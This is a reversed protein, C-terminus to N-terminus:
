APQNSSAVRRFPLVIKCVTGRGPTSDLELSGGANEVLSKSISLGLGMGGLKTTFFPEFIREELHPVVGEGQDTVTITVLRDALAASITVVGSVPSAEIANQVVNYLVQYLQGEQSMPVAASADCLACLTQDITVERQRATSELLTTVDSIATRVASAHQNQSEPQYLKFMQRVIQAIRDIERQIKGVYAHYPHTQPVAEQVLLFAHKIGAIPNNIEHAISAAIRATAALKATETRQQELRDRGVAQALLTAVMQLFAVEGEDFSRRKTTYASLVWCTRQQCHFSVSVGSVVNHKLLFPVNFRPDTRLDEIIIPEKSRGASAASYAHGGGFSAPRILHSKWGVGARLLLTDQDPSVELVASYEVGLTGAVTKTAAEFLMSVPIGSLTSQGLQVLATQQRALTAIKLEANKRATIDIAYAAIGIPRQTENRLLSMSVLRDFEGGSKRQASVEFQLWGKELLQPLIFSQFLAHDRQPYLLRVHKGQVEAASYGFLHEAGTNWSTIRGRLDLTYVADHAQQIIYSVPQAPPYAARARSLGRALKNAGVASTPLRATKKREM